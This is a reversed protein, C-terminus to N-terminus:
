MRWMSIETEKYHKRTYCQFNYIIFNKNEDSLENLAFRIVTYFNIKIKLVNSIGSAKSATHMMLIDKVDSYKYTKDFLFNHTFTNKNFELTYYSAKFVTFMIYCFYAYLIFICISLPFKQGIFPANWDMEKFSSLSLYTGLWLGGCFISM